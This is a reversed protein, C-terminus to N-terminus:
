ATEGFDVTGLTAEGPVVTITGQASVVTGDNNTTTVSIIAAGPAGITVTGTLGDDSAVVTAAAENDSAWTGPNDATTPNGEADVYTVTATIPDHNDAVQIQDSM